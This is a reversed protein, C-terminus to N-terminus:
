MIRKFKFVMNQEATFARASAIQLKCYGEDSRSTRKIRLFLDGSNPAHGSNQLLIEDSEGSNTGSSYWTMIGTFVEGWLGGQGNNAGTLQVMYSGTQGVDTYCIGTDMWETGVLLPKTITVVDYLTDAKELSAQVSNALDDKPIGSSPLYYNTNDTYLRLAGNKYWYVPHQAIWSINYKSTSYAYGLHIYIKGDETSPLTQSWWTDALTYTAGNPIGVLYVPRYQVLTAGCNATYRFDIGSHQTLLLNDGIVSGVTGDTGSNLYFMPANIMYSATNKTKTTGTSASNVFGQLKGESDYTCLNYRYVNGAGILPKEYYSKVTYAITNDNADGTEQLGNESFNYTSPANGFGSYNTANAGEWSGWKIASNLLTATCNIQELLEVKITREKGTTDKANADKLSVGIAHGYNADFGAQLLRYMTHYYAPRYSTNYINNFTAYSALNSQSGMFLVTAMARYNSDSEVWVYIRYRVSWIDTFTSPKVSMFYFTNNGWTTDNTTGLINEYTKTNLVKDVKTDFKAALLQNLQEAGSEDLYKAM